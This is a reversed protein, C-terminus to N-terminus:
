RQKSGKKVYSTLWDSIENRDDSVTFNMTDRERYGMFSITYTIELDNGDLIYTGRTTGMLPDYIVVSSKDTFEMYGSNDFQSIYRGSLRTESTEGSILTMTIILAAIATVACSSASLAITKIKKAASVSQNNKCKNYYNVTFLIIILIIGL